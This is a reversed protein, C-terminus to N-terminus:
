AGTVPDVALTVGRTYSREVPAVTALGMQAAVATLRTRLTALGGEVGARTEAFLDPFRELEARGDTIQRPAFLPLSTLLNKATSYSSYVQVVDVLKQQVASRGSPALQLATLYAADLTESITELDWILSRHYLPLALTADDLEEDSVGLVARISDFTTYHILM